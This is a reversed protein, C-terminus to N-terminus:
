SVRPTLSKSRRAALKCIYELKCLDAKYPLCTKKSAMWDAETFIGDKNADCAPKINDLTYNWGMKEVAWEIKQMRKPTYHHKAYEFESDQIVGDHNTDIYKKICQLADTRTFGCSSTTPFGLARIASNKVWKPVWIGHVIVSFFTLFVLVKFM